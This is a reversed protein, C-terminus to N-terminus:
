EPSYIKFVCHRKLLSRGEELNSLKGAAIMQGIINGMATGEAYGTIVTLGTANAVLQCFLTNHVGGGTIYVKHIPQNVTESVQDLIKKIKLALSVLVCRVLTNRAPSISQGSKGLYQIVAQEMDPPNFFMPDDPDIFADTSGAESAMAMLREYPYENEGWSKRLGNLIWFGMMNKLIRFGELGGENTINHSFGKPNIVPSPSEVGILMWTGTSIYAWNEGDAPIAAIASATDHTAPVVVCTDPLSLEGALSKTLKGLVSGPRIVPQMIESRIGLANFLEPEWDNRNPNFLQSTTAFTFETAKIGTLLYNFIDPMFLLSSGPTFLEPRYKKEAFLQFLTNIPLIQGGTLDYLHQRTIIESFEEVANHTRDDRYSYPLGAFRGSPDMIAYDVGWTDIGLTEPATGFEKRAKLIATVIEEYFWYINWHKHGNLTLLGTPFRHIEKVTLTKGDFLGLLAKGSEAGMDIALHSSGLM